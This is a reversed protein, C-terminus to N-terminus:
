RQSLTYTTQPGLARTAWVGVQRCNYQVTTQGRGGVGGLQVESIAPLWRSGLCDYINREARGYFLKLSTFM